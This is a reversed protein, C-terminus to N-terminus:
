SYYLQLMGWNEALNYLAVAILLLGGVLNIARSHLAFWRTLQRQSRGRCCRSRCCLFASGSGSGSSRGSSTWRKASRSRTSSSRWSWRARARCRSRGTSCGTPTPTSRRGACCRFRSRPCGTSRTETRVGAPRGSGPDGRDGGPHPDGPRPRDLGLSRGHDGGSRADRVARGGARVARPLLSAPEAGVAAQGSLYALFGPYLPLVCPSLTALLGFSLSTLAIDVDVPGSVQGADEQPQDASKVGFPLGWVGGKRDIILMPQLPPNLYDVDYNKALFQGVSEAGRRGALQIRETAAYKKLITADENPDVDLSITVLDVGIGYDLHLQQVQSMEGQCTPCWTAMTEVLVVKGAFDGVKFPKGTNVDTMQVDFWSPITPSPAVYIPVPDTASVKSTTSCGALILLAALLGSMGRIHRARTTMTSEEHDTASVRLVLSM